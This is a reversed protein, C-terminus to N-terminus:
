WSWDRASPPTWVGAEQLYPLVGSFRAIDEPRWRLFQLLVGGAGETHLAILREAVQEATGILPLFWTGMGLMRARATLEPDDGLRSPLTHDGGYTTRLMEYCADLNITDAMLEIQREADQESETILCRSTVLLGTEAPDRGADRMFGSLTERTERAQGLQPASTLLADVHAAAYAMGAPSAAANVLLPYPKQVARPSKIRGHSRFYTGDHEVVGEETWLRKVLETFEAAAVYRQDHDITQTGFLESQQPQNTVVNWGWRGGSIADMTAGMRAVHVPHHLDTHMTTIVGIRDTAGAIATGILPAHYMPSGHGTAEAVPDQGSWGDAILVFDLQAAECGRALEILAQPTPDPNHRALDDSYVAGTKGLPYFCGFQLGHAPDHRAKM